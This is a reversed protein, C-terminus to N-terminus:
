IVYEASCNPTEYVVVSTLEVQPSVKLEGRLERIKSGIRTFWHQALNEATPVQEMLYLKGYKGNVYFAWLRHDLCTRAVRLDEEGNRLFGLTYPDDISLITGHDCPHYIESMMFDKLFGFDLVMGKQEGEAYLPGKCTALIRYRHGHLSKCKSRHDPIRHASDIEIQRTITYMM